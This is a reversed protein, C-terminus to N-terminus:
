NDDFPPRNDKSKPQPQQYRQQSSFRKATAVMEERDLYGDKNSDMSGFFRSMQEGAEEKSVKGDKDKDREMIRNVFADTNEASGGRTNGGTPRGSRPAPILESADLKGDKNKDLTMLATSAASIEEASLTGDKNKDLATMFPPLARRARQAPEQGGPRQGRQPPQAFLTPTLFAVTLFVVLLRMHKM